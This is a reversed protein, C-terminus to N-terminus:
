VSEVIVDEPTGLSSYFEFNKGELYGEVFDFEYTTCGFERIDGQILRECAKILRQVTEFPYIM